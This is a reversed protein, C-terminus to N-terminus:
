WRLWYKFEDEPVPKGTQVLTHNEPLDNQDAFRHYGRLVFLFQFNAPNVRSTAEHELFGESTLFYEAKPSSLLTLLFRKDNVALGYTPGPIETTLYWHGRSTMGCDELSTHLGWDRDPTYKQRDTCFLWSWPLAVQEAGSRGAKVLIWDKGYTYPGFRDQLYSLYLDDLLEQICRYKYTKMIVGNGGSDWSRDGEDSLEICVCQPPIRVHQRIHRKSVKVKRRLPSVKYHKPIAADILEGLTKVIQELGAEYKQGRLDVYQTTTMGLPICDPWDQGRGWLPYVPRGKTEAVNVEGKVYVSKRSDPSALLLVAFCQDIADRIASEWDPTGPVLKEYDTWVPIGQEELDAALQEVLEKDSNSFSIFIHEPLNEPKTLM